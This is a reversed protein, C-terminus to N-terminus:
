LFEFLQGWCRLHLVDEGFMSEKGNRLNHLKEAGALHNDAAARETVARM